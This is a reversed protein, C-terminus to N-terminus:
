TRPTRPSGWTANTSMAGLSDALGEGASRVKDAAGDAGLTDLADATKDTVFEVGEGFKEAAGDIIDGGKDALSNVTNVLGDFVGGMLKM